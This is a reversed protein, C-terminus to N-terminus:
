HPGAHAARRPRRSRDAALLCQMVLLRRCISVYRVTGDAFQSEEISERMRVMSAWVAPSGSRSITSPQGAGSPAVMSSRRSRPALLVLVVQPARQHELRAAVEVHVARQQGLRLAGIRSAPTSNMCLSPNLVIHPWPMMATTVIASSRPLQDGSGAGAQRSRARRAPRALDAGRPPSRAPSRAPDLATDNM